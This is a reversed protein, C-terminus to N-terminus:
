GRCLSLFVGGCFLSNSVNPRSKSLDKGNPEWQSKISLALANLALFSDLSAFIIAEYEIRFPHPGFHM